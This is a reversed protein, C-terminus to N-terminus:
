HINKGLEFADNLATGQNIDGINKVGPVLLTQSDNIKFSSLVAKFEFELGKFMNLDNEECVAILIAKSINLKRKANPMLYAHLKDVLLKVSAAMGGFYVPTVLVLIDSVQLYPAVTNFDDDIMCPKGKRWCNECDRCPLIKKNAADFRHVANGSARAGKIFAYALSMSNGEKRASGTVVLINKAMKIEM